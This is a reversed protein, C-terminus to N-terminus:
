IVDMDGDMEEHEGLIDVLNGECYTSIDSEPNFGFAYDSKSCTMEYPPEYGSPAIEEDMTVHMFCEDDEVGIIEVTIGEDPYFLVPRCIRFADDFCDEDTGCSTLEAGDDPLEYDDGSSLMVYVIDMLVVDKIYQIDHKVQELYDTTMDNLNDRIGQRIDNVKDIVGRFMGAVTRFRMEDNSGVSAYYDALADAQRALEDLKM